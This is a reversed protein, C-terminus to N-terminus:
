NEERRADDRSASTASLLWSPLAREVSADDESLEVAEASPTEAVRAIWEDDSEGGSHGRLGSWAEAVESADPSPPRAAKLFPLAAATLCAAAALPIAWARIRRAPRKRTHEPGLIALAGALEVASAVAERADQDEDLLREFASSEEPALEGSIYLFATWHLDSEPELTM